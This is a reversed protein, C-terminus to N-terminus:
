FQIIQYRFIPMNFCLINQFICEIAIYFVINFNISCVARITVKYFYFTERRTSKSGMSTRISSSLKLYVRTRVALSSPDARAKERRERKEGALPGSVPERRAEKYVKNFEKYYTLPNVMHLRSRASASAGNM